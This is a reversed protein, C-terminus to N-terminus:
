GDVGDNIPLRVIFRAGGGVRDECYVRGGHAAVTEAVLALGIGTGTASGRGVRITAFREFIRTRDIVPVGPGADDVMVVAEHGERRVTVAVAGGAHREANDLLNAITRELELRRGRIMANDVVTLLEPPYQRAALTHTLLEGVSLREVDGRHVGADVRALELMDDIMQRLHNLEDSILKLARRSRDPLEHARKNMIGVATVLTTLPTRLEHSVDGVLRREREIRQQLSDVMTNFADVTAALDRDLTSPLRTDLKGSAILSATNALQHLPKLVRRSAWVGLLAGISTAVIACGVLLNRLMRLTSDLETIPTFEYFVDGQDNLAVRVRLYPKGAITVRQTAAPEAFDAPVLADTAVATESDLWEGGWWLLLITGDPPEIAALTEEGVQESRAVHTRLVGVHADALREASRERQDDMYGRGITFVSVALVLSVLSASM